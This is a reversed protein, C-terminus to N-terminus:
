HGPVNVMVVAQVVLNKSLKVGGTTLREKEKCSTLKTVSRKEQTWELATDKEMLEGLGDKGLSHEKGLNWTLLALLHYAIGDARKVNPKNCSECQAM